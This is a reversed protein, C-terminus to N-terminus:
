ELPHQSSKGSGSGDKWGMSLARREWLATQKQAGLLEAEAKERAEESTEMGMNCKEAEKQYLSAIRRADLFALEAHQQKESSVTQQLKLEESLLHLMEKDVEEQKDPEDNLCDSISTSLVALDSTCDCHCPPCPNQHSYGGASGVAGASIFRWFVPALVYLSLGGLALMVIFFRLSFTQQRAMRM